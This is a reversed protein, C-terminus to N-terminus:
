EEETNRFSYLTKDLKLTGGNFEEIFDEILHKDIEEVNLYIDMGIGYEFDKDIEISEAVKVKEDEELEEIIEELVLEADEDITYNPKRKDIEVYNPYLKKVQKEAEEFVMSNHYLRLTSMVADYIVAKGEYNGVFQFHAFEGSNGMDDEDEVFVFNKNGDIVIEKKLQEIETKDFGLNM